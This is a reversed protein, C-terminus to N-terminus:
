PSGAGFRDLMSQMPAAPPLARVVPAAPAARSPPQAMLSADEDMPTRGMDRGAAIVVPRGPASAEEARSASSSSRVPMESALRLVAARAAPSLKGREMVAEARGADGSVLLYLALNGIIKVNGPALEAAQAIPLRAGALDGQRLLAYGLDGVISPNTPDLRAAERLAAVAGAYDGRAGAILGLGQSAAAGSTSTLLKRYVAESEASQGAERLGHARLLQVDAATGYKQEFADVHAISAFYLGKAQMERIMSLYMGRQDAQPEKNAVQQRMIAEDTRQSAAADLGSSSTACGAAATLILLLPTLLFKRNFVAM